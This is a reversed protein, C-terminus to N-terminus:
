NIKKYDLQNMNEYGESNDNQYDVQNENEYKLQNDDQYNYDDANRYNDKDMNQYNEQNQDEYEFSATPNGPDVVEDALGPGPNLTLFIGLGGVLLLCPSLWQPTKNFFSM